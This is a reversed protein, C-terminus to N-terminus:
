LLYMRLERSIRRKMYQTTVVPNANKQIFSSSINKNHRSQINSENFNLLIEIFRQKNAIDDKLLRNESERLLIRNRLTIIHEFANVLPPDLAAAFDLIFHKTIITLPQFGNVIIVFREMKSTAAARSGGRNINQPVNSVFYELISWADKAQDSSDKKLLPLEDKFYSAIAIMKGYIKTKLSALKSSLM